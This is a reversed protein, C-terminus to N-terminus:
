RCECASVTAEAITEDSGSWRLTLRDNSSTAEISFAEGPKLPKLFKVRRVSTIALGITGLKAEALALLYAGPVIPNGHFHGQFCAHGKPVGEPVYWVKRDFM